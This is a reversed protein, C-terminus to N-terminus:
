LLDYRVISEENIAIAAMQRTAEVLNFRGAGLYIQLSPASCHRSLALLQEESCQLRAMQSLGGRRTSRLDSPLFKKMRRQQTLALDRTENHPLISTANIFLYPYTAKKRKIVWSLLLEACPSTPPLHITYPGTANITKGEVVTITTSGVQILSSTVNATRWTLIDGNRQGTVFSLLIPLLLITDEDNAAATLQFIRRAEDVSMCCKTDEPDWAPVTIMKLKRQLQTLSWARQKQEDDSTTNNIAYLTNVRSLLTSNEWQRRRMLDELAPILLKPQISLLKELSNHLSGPQM